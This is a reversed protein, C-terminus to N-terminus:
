IKEAVYFHASRSRPNREVEEETPLIPKKTILRISKKHGCQCQPFDKPCVCDRSERRFIEKVRRHESGHFSIVGIRGHPRLLEMAASLGVQIVELERNVEMRLALFVKAAPHTTSRKRYYKRYIREILEVLTPASLTKKERLFLIGRAIPRALNEEGYERFIKELNEKSYKALIDQATPINEEPNMRMDLYDGWYSFGREFQDLQFSSVGLDFLVANVESINRKLVLEKLRSFNESVIAVRELVGKEKLYKESYRRAEPDQEFAIIKGEKGVKEAFVLTHGSFGLTADIVIDGKQPNLHELVESLMVPIHPKEM